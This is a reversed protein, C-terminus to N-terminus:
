IVIKAFIKGIDLLTVNKEGYDFVGVIFERIGTDLTSLPPSIERVPIDDVDIVADVLIGSCIGDKAALVIFGQSPASAAIGLFHRIDIVSEVDGRVNILGALFEPVGPVPSIETPPLIERVNEGYFAYYEDALTFIVIKVRAEEVDIIETLNDFTRDSKEGSNM